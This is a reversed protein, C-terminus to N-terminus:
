KCRFGSVMGDYCDVFRNAAISLTFEDLARTRMATGIARREARSLTAVAVLEEALKEPNMPSVVVGNSGVIRRSDGVDTVICPLGMMMAELVM